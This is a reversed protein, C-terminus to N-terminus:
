AACDRLRRVPIVYYAKVVLTSVWAQDDRPTLFDQQVYLGIKWEGRHKAFVFFRARGSTHSRRLTHDSLTNPIRVAHPACLSEPAEGSLTTPHSQIQMACM